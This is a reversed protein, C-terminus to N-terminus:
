HHRCWLFVCRWRQRHRTSVCKPLSPLRAPRRSLRSQFRHWRSGPSAMWHDQFCPSPVLARGVNFLGAIDFTLTNRDAIAVDNAPLTTAGTPDTITLDSPQISGLLLAQSFHLTYTAPFTGFVQAALTDTEVMRLPLGRIAAPDSSALSLTVSGLGGNQGLRVRYIGTESVSFALEANRGDAASNDDSTLLTGDPGFLKFPTLRTSRNM